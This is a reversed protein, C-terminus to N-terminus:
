DAHPGTPPIKLVSSKFRGKAAIVNAGELASVWYFM